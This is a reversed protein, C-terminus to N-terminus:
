APFDSAKRKSPTLAKILCALTIGVICGTWGTWLDNWDSRRHPLAFQIWEFCPVLVFLIAIGIRRRSSPILFVVAAGFLAFGAVNRLPDNGDIARIWHAPLLGHVELAPTPKLALFAIGLFVLLLLAYRICQQIIGPHELWPPRPLLFLPRGEISVGVMKGPEFHWNVPRVEATECGAM